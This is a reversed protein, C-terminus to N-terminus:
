TRCKHGPISPSVLPFDAKYSPQPFGRNEGGPQFPVLFDRCPLLPLFPSFPQGSPRPKPHSEPLSSPQIRFDYSLSAWTVPSGRGPLLVAQLPQFTGAVYGRRTPARGTQAEQWESGTSDKAFPHTKLCLSVLNWISHGQTHLRVESGRSKRMKLLSLILSGVQSLPKSPKVLHNRTSHKVCHM